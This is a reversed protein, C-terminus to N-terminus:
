WLPNPRYLPAAWPTQQGASLGADEPRQAIALYELIRSRTADDIQRMGNREQMQTILDAWRERTLHNAVVIATSHCPLCNVLILERGPGPKLGFQKELPDRKTGGTTEAGIIWLAALWLIIIVLLAVRLFTWGKLLSAKM